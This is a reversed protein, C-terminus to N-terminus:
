NNIDKGRPCFAKQRERVEQIQVNGKELLDILDWHWDLNHPPFLPKPDPKRRSNASKVMQMLDAFTNKDALKVLYPEKDLILVSKDSNFLYEDENFVFPKVTNRIKKSRGSVCSYNTGASFIHKPVDYIDDKYQFVATEKSFDMDSKWYRIDYLKNGDIIFGSINEAINQESILFGKSPSIGKYFLPNEVSNEMYNLYLKNEFFCFPIENEQYNSYKLIISGTLTEENSFKENMQSIYIQEANRTTGTNRIRVEKESYTKPEAARDYYWGYYEKLIIVIQPEKTNEDKEFFVIRDKGEWIGYLQEPIEVAFLSIHTFTLLISLITILKKM